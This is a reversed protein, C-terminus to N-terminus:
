AAEKGCRVCADYTEGRWHYRHAGACPIAQEHGWYSRRVAATYRAPTATM